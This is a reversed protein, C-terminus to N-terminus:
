IAFYKTRLPSHTTFSTLVRIGKDAMFFLWLYHARV